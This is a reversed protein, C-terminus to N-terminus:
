APDDRGLLIAVAPDDELDPLLPVIADYAQIDLIGWELIGALYARWAIVFREPLKGGFHDIDSQIRDKLESIREEMKFM